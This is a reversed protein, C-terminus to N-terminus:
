IGRMLLQIKHTSNMGKQGGYSCSLHLFTVPRTFNHKTYLSNEDKDQLKDVTFYYIKRYLRLLGQVKDKSYILLDSRFAL